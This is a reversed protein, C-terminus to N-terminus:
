TKEPKSSGLKLKKAKSTSTAKMGEYEPSLRGELPSIANLEEDLEEAVVELREVQQEGIAKNKATVKEVQESIITLM